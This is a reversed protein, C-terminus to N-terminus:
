KDIDDTLVECGKRTVLIMDEIRIGGWGPLYVAPEITFIMGPKLVAHNRGSISPSEHVELGIGHGLAHGFCDGFGKKRIFGRAIEDIKSIEVGPRIAKISRRNAERVTDYIKKTRPNIKGLFFMRTLDSNYGEYSVGLDLLVMDNPKIRRKGPRAHPLASNSGSAVIIDFSSKDGGAAKIFHELEAALDREALGPRLIAKFHTFSKELISVSKRILHIEGADKILRLREVMDSVPVLETEPLSRMLRAYQGHTIDNCEFGLRRVKLKNALDALTESLSGKVIKVTFGETDRKAQLEYRSDTIFFQKKGTIFLSADDGEYRSLYRVNAAKTVWFADIGDKSFDEIVRKIRISLM